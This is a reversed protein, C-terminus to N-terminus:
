AVFLDEVIAPSRAPPASMMASTSNKSTASNPAPSLPEPSKPSSSVTLTSVGSFFSKEIVFRFLICLEQSEVKAVHGEAADRRRVFRQEELILGLDGEGRYLGVGSEQKLDLGM